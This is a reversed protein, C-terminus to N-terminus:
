NAAMVFYFFVFHSYFHALLAIRHDTPPPCPWCVFVFLRFASQTGFTFELYIVPFSLWLQSTAQQFNAQKAM